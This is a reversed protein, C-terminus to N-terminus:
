KEKFMIITNEELDTNIDIYVGYTQSSNGYTMSYEGYGERKSSLPEGFAEKIEEKTSDLTIGKAISFQPATYGDANTVNITDVDCNGAAQEETGYNTVMVYIQKGEKELSFVEDENESLESDEDKENNCSWGNEKLESYAFPLQYTEGELTFICDELNNNPQTNTRGAILIVIFAAIIAVAITAAVRGKQKKKKENTGQARDGPRVVVPESVKAEQKKEPIKEKIHTDAAAATDRCADSSETSGGGGYFDDCFEELNQYRDKASINMGKLIANEMRFPVPIGLQSPKELNDEGFVRDYAMQPTKGTLCKYVTACLAYIDTWPGQKGNTQYQEPPAYGHKLLVTLTSDGYDAYNRAAGFDMLVNKNGPMLMINDPSIDRHIYGKKHIEELAETIPKMVSRIDQATLLGNFQIYNKLTIGDLYDMVIYATGNAEFYDRVNVVGPIDNCKAMLKAEKLFRQKGGEFIDFRERSTVTVETGYDIIRAAIGSPFFEKIAVKKEWLKDWGLYAIGFGGEGLVSQIVYKGNLEMNPKLYHLGKEQM